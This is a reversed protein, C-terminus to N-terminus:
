RQWAPAGAKSGDASVPTAPPAGPASAKKRYRAILVDATVTVNGRVARADGRAVVMMENQRWEMGDRSTVDVPGGKSMDIDQAWATGALALLMSALLALRRM